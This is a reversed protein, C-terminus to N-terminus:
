ALGSAVPRQFEGGAVEASPAAPTWALGVTIVILLLNRLAVITTGVPDLKAVSGFLYPFEAQTLLAMALCAALLLWGRARGSESGAALVVVPLLALLYQPSLVPTTALGVAVAFAVATAPRTGERAFHVSGWVLAVVGIGAVVAAVWGVQSGSVQQSGLGGSYSTLKFIPSLLYSITAPISEIEVGRHLSTSAAAFVNGRSWAAFALVVVVAPTL